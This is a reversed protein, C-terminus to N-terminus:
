CCQYFLLIVCLLFKLKMFNSKKFGGSFINITAVVRSAEPVIESLYTSPVKGGLFLRYSAESYLFVMETWRNALNVTSVSLNNSM